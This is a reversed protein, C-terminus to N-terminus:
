KAQTAILRLGAKPLLRPSTVGGSPAPMAARVNANREARETGKAPAAREARERDTHAPIGRAHVV